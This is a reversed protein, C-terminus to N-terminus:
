ITDEGYAMDAALQKSSDEASQLSSIHTTLRDNNPQVLADLEAMAANYRALNDATLGVAVRGNTIKACVQPHASVSELHAMQGLSQGDITTDIDIVLLGSRKRGGYAYLEHHATMTIVITNGNHATWHITRVENM